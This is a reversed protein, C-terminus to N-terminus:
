DEPQPPEVKCAPDDLLDGLTRGTDRDLVYGRLTAELSTYRQVEESELDGATVGGAFTAVAITRGCGSVKACGFADLYYRLLDPNLRRRPPLQVAVIRASRSRRTLRAQCATGTRRIEVATGAIPVQDGAEGSDALQGVPVM